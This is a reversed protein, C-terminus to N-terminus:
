PSSRRDSAQKGLLLQVSAGRLDAVSGHFPRSCPGPLRHHWYRRAQDLWAAFRDAQFRAPDGTFFERHPTSHLVSEEPPPPLRLPALAAADLVARLKGAMALRAVVDTIDRRIDTIAPILSDAPTVGAGSETKRSQQLVALRARATEINKQITNREVWFTEEARRREDATRAAAYATRFTGSAASSRKQLESLAQETQALEADLQGSPASVGAFRHTELNLTRFVPHAWLLLRSDVFGVSQAGATTGTLLLCILYAYIRRRVRM